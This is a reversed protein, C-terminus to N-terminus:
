DAAPLTSYSSLPFSIFFHVVVQKILHSSGVVVVAVVVVVVVVVVAAGIAHLSWSGPNVLTPVV